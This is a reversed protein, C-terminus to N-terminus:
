LNYQKIKNRLEKVEFGKAKGENNQISIFAGSRHTMQIHSGKTNRHVFGLELLLNYFDNFRINNDSKASMVKEYTRISKSNM